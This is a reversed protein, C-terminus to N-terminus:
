FQLSLNTQLKRIVEMAQLGSVNRDPYFLGTMEDVPMLGREASLAIANYAFHNSPIDRYRSEEGFYKKKLDTDKLVNVLISQIALAFESRSLKRNPQFTGDPYVTLTKLDLITTIWKIAWNNYIDQPVAASQGIGPAALSSLNAGYKEYVDGIKFEEVLLVALDARTIADLLSIKEGIITGPSVRQLIQMSEYQTNAADFFRGKKEIVKVYEKGANGYEKGIRYTEARFYYIEENNPSLEEAEELAKLSKKLWKNDQLITFYRSKLIWLRTDPKQVDFAKEINNTSEKKQNMKGNKQNMKGYVLSLAGYGAGFNKDLQISRNLSSLADSYNENKLQDMGSQYHYEPNDLQSQPEVVPKKSCSTGLLLLLSFLIIHLFINKM